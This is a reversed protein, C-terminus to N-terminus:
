KRVKSFIRLVVAIFIEILDRLTVLARASEGYARAHAFKQFAHARQFSDQGKDDFRENM